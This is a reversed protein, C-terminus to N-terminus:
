GALDLGRQYGRKRLRSTPRYQRTTDGQNQRRYMIRLLLFLPLHLDECLNGARVPSPPNHGFPTKPGQSPPWHRGPVSLCRKCRATPTHTLIKCITNKTKPLNVQGYCTNKLRTYIWPFSGKESWEFSNCLHSM